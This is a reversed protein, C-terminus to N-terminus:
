SHISVQCIETELDMPPELLIHETMILNHFEVRGRDVEPIPVSVSNRVEAPKFWKVAASLMHDAQKSQELHAGRRQEDMDINNKCLQCIVFGKYNPLRALRSEM